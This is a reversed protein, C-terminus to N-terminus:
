IMGGLGTIGQYVGPKFYDFRFQNKVKNLEEPTLDELTKGEPIFAEISRFFIDMDKPVESGMDVPPPPPTEKAFQSILPYLPM